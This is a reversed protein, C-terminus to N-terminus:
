LFSPPSPWTVDATTAPNGTITAPFDRLTQRYTKLETVQAETFPADPLVAYDTNTLLGNRKARIEKTVKTADWDWSTTTFNWSAHENAPLGTYNFEGTTENYYYNMIFHDFDLCEQNPLNADNLIVMRSLGDESVGNTPIAGTPYRIGFIRGTTADATLYGYTM